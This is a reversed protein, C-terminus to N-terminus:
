KVDNGTLQAFQVYTPHGLCVNPFELKKSLVTM